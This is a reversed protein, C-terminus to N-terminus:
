RIVSTVGGGRSNCRLAINFGSEIPFFTIDGDDDQSIAALQDYKEQSCFIAESDSQLLYKKLEESALNNDIAVAVNGSTTIAFFALLWEYSNEASIAIHKGYFGHSLLFNGLEEVEQAFSSFSVDRINKRDIRYCFAIKDPASEKCSLLLDRLDSIPQITKINDQRIAMFLGKSAMSVPFPM